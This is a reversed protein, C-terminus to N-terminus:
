SLKGSFCIKNFRFGYNYGIIFLVCKDDAVKHVISSFIFLLINILKIVFALITFMTRKVYRFPTPVIMARTSCGKPQITCCVLSHAHWMFMINNYAYTFPPLVNIRFYNDRREYSRERLPPDM